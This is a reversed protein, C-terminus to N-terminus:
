YGPGLDGDPKVRKLGKRRMLRTGTVVLVLSLLFTAGSVLYGLRVQQWPTFELVGEGSGVKVVLTGEASERAPRGKFSWGRQYPADVSVWGAAGSDIQYAVPSLERVSAPGLKYKVGESKSPSSNAGSTAANGSSEVVTRGALEKDQALSLLSKVGTVHTLTPARWGVGVYDVNRWVELSQTDLILKLDNQDGLWLYGTWDVTKSLVVYQVGLPAVLAGFEKTTPGYNFLQELYASRPSTSQSQVGGAQVNDGAIVNRRFEGSGINAVVRNNTFPYSMYLHWPLYLVNGPGTGMLSDAQQYSAPVSSPAIQGDLGNFINASYGLPLAVGVLAAALFNGSKSTFLNLKSIYEVGWGFFVAYALALLMLFKEPERMLSFFPVHDYAWLFLSGTPGQDGLALFYGFVGLFLFLLVFYRSGVDFYSAKIVAVERERFGPGAVDREADEQPSAESPPNIKDVSRHLLTGVGVGVVILLAVMLLPWGGIIDKPLVPGPGLRWFGYLSLVNAFLGLHADGTTSYLDLSVQGVQTGLNTVTHPLFIYSSMLAFLGVSTAFWGTTRLLSLRKTYLPLLAVGLVVVGFIWAYHPSLATLGAWWLAAIPWRHLSSSAAKIVAKTAFPLLAYGLLLALHGVYIRTFVFPNVAYLVGASIRVWHTGGALRGAGVMALPFFLLIPLWTVAGGLVSNFLATVATAIAGSTLGGNLGLSGSTVIGSHPGVGWDLLFLRGGGLLPLCVGFGIFLGFAFNAIDPNRVM